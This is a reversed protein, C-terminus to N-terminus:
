AGQHRHAFAVARWEARGAGLRALLSLLVFDLMATQGELTAADSRMGTERM